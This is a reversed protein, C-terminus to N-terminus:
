NGLGAVCEIEVKANLALGSAAFASRAPLPERFFTRYIDSAKAWDDMDALMLSCKSIDAPTLNHEQLVAMINQMAQTMQSSIDSGALTMTGPFNGLQGSLWLMGGAKRASSFPLRSDDGRYIFRGNKLVHAISRSNNIDAFPDQDLVLLNAKKGSAITGVSDAIGIALASHLTAAQIAEAPTLGGQKVLLQLEHHLLPFAAKDDVSDTGASIRIGHQHALRTLFIGHQYMVERNSGTHRYKEFVTLTADLITGHQQMSQLLQSYREPQFSADHEAQPITANKRRWAVYNEIVQASLDPVHSIVEVGAEVVSQPTDPGIFAHSWVKLGAQKAAEALKSVVTSPVTAYIKIGSAGTGLTRQMLAAFDTDSNVARMWDTDGPKEGLASAVTRPDNFFLRGGLIVSYYIDPSPILDLQASRKLGALVRVDGGMDRVSTVGGRLLKHLRQRTIVQNDSGEPVTAHHVHADILGPLLYKGALNVETYGKPLRKGAPLVDAILGDKILVTQAPRIQLKEVDVLNVHTLAIDATYAPTVVVLPLVTLLSFVIRM